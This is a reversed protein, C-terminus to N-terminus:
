RGVKGKNIGNGEIETASSINKVLYPNTTLLGTTKPWTKKKRKRRNHNLWRALDHSSKLLTASQLECDRQRLVQLSACQFASIVGRDRTSPLKEATLMTIPQFHSCGSHLRMIFWNQHRDLSMNSLPLPAFFDIRESIKHRITFTGNYSISIITM